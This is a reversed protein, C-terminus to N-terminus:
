SKLDTEDKIVILYSKEFLLGKIFNLLAGILKTIPNIHKKSLSLVCHRPNLEFGPGKPRSDLVRGNLWQVGHATHSQPMEQDYEGVKQCKTM